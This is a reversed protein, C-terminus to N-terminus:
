LKEITYKEWDGQWDSQTIRYNKTTSTHYGTGSKKFKARSLASTLSRIIKEDTEIEWQPVSANDQELIITRFNSGDHFTIGLIEEGETEVDFNETIYEFVYWDDYASLCDGLNFKYEKGLEEKLFTNAAEVLEKNTLYLYDGAEYAGCQQGYSGYTESLRIKEIESTNIVAWANKQNLDRLFTHQKM